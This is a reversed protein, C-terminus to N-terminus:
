HGKPSLQPLRAPLSERGPVIGEIEKKQPTDRFAECSHRIPCQYLPTHCIGPKQNLIENISRERFGVYGKGDLMCMNPMRKNRDIKQIFHDGFLLLFIGVHQYIEQIHKEISDQSIRQPSSQRDGKPENFYGPEGDKSITTFGSLFHTAEGRIANVEDYWILSDLIGAYEPDIDRKNNLFARKQKNFHPSLNGEPYIAKVLSALSECLSYISNM